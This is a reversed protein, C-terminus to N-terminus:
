NYNIYISIFKGRALIENFLSKKLPNGTGPKEKIKNM